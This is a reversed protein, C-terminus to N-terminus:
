PKNHIMSNVHFADQTDPFYIIVKMGRSTIWKFIHPDPFNNACQQCCACDNCDSSVVGSDPCYEITQMYLNPNPDYSEEPVVTSCVVCHYHYYPYKWSETKTGFVDRQETAVVVTFSTNSLSPTEV